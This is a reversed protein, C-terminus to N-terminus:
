FKNRLYIYFSGAGGHAPSAESFLLIKEKNLNSFVWNRIQSRIKGFYLKNQNNKTSRNIAGKGTIFIILRKSNNYCYDIEENFRKQAEAVTLGHLDIKKNIKIKGKKIKKLTEKDEQPQNITTKKIFKVGKKEKDINHEKKDEEKPTKRLFKETEEKLKKFKSNKINKKILPKVDSLIEEFYDKSKKNMTRM